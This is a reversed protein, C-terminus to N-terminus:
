KKGVMKLAWAVAPVEEDLKLIPPEPGLPTISFPNIQTHSKTYHNKIHTFETTDKFAPITWYLHRLWKHTYPYDARITRLNT